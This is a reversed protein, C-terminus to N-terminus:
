LTKMEGMFARLQEWLKDAVDTHEKLVNKLQFRDTRRDYLEDGQPVIAKGGVACTWTEEEEEMTRQMNKGKPLVGKATADEAFNYISSLVDGATSNELKNLWHIYSWDETIISWSLNYFGSVAFDRVKEVEGRLLPLLSKGTMSPPIPIDMWDLVTPACDYDQVFAKIRKGAPLGPARVILPIHVLEEYPWPRSKSILGHGHEGHGMPQGHDSTLWILTNELMGMKRLAKMLQGFYKDCLTVKEAYLMRMHHLQEETYLDGIETMPPYWVQAGKYDPDYPCKREPDWISPPDTPEHPDWNDIWLHLPHRHDANELLKIAEHINVAVPQDDDSDWHQKDRLYKDYGARMMHELADGDPRARLRELFGEDLFEEINYHSYLDDNRFHTSSYGYSFSTKSYGRAFGAKDSFLVPPNYAIATCAHGYCLDAITTDEQRLPKWGVEHLGFRGTMMSRRNPQTPLNNSYANEFLVGERAFRDFNPTKIWKNGYCGLYTHTWSDFVIVISNKIPKM